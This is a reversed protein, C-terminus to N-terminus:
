EVLISALPIAGAREAGARAIPRAVTVWDDLQETSMSELNAMVLNYLDLEEDIELYRGALYSELTSGDIGMERDEDVMEEAERYIAELGSLAYMPHPLHSQLESATEYADQWEMQQVMEDTLEEDEDLEIELAM